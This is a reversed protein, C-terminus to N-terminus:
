KINGLVETDVDGPVSESCRHACREMAAMELREELEEVSLSKELENSIKTKM